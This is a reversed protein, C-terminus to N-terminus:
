QTCQNMRKKIEAAAQDLGSYLSTRFGWTRGDRLSLTLMFVPNMSRHSYRDAGSFVGQGSELEFRIDAIESYPAELAFFPTRYRVGDEWLELRKGTSYVFLLGFGVALIPLCFPVLMRYWALTGSFLGFDAWHVCFLAFILFCLAAKVLLLVRKAPAALILTKSSRIPDDLLGVTTIIRGDNM